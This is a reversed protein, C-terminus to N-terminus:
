WTRPTGSSCIPITTSVVSDGVPDDLPQHLMATLTMHDGAPDVAGVRQARITARSCRTRAHGGRADPSGTSVSM